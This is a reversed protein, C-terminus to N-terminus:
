LKGNTEPNGSKRWCKRTSPWCDKRGLGSEGSSSMFKMEWSRKWGTSKRPPKIEKNLRELEKDKDILQGLPAFEGGATVISVSNELQTKDEILIVESAFGLKQLYHEGSGFAGRADGTPIIYTKAKKSPHVNMEQRINRISKIAEILYEMRNEADPFNLATEFQPWQALTITEEGTLAMYIEETIFPMVPHLLKLGDSLVKLLVRQAIAKAKEDTGYLDGKILEIYWDCM